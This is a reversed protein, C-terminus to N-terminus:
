GVRWVVNVTQLNSTVRVRLPSSLSLSSSPNKSDDEGENELRFGENLLKTEKRKWLKLALSSSCPTSSTSHHDPSLIIFVFTLTFDLKKGQGFNQFHSFHITLTYPLDFDACHRHPVHNDFLAM